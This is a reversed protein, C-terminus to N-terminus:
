NDVGKEFVSKFLAHSSSSYMCTTGRAAIKLVNFPFHVNGLRSYPLSVKCHSYNKKDSGTFLVALRLGAGAGPRRSGLKWARLALLPSAPCSPCPGGPPCQSPPEAPSCPLVLHFCTLATPSCPGEGAPVQQDAAIVEGRRIVSSRGASALYSLFTPLAALRRACLRLWQTALHRGAAQPVERSEAPRLMHRAEALPAVPFTVQAPRASAEPARSAARAEPGEVQPRSRASPGLPTAVVWLRVRGTLSSQQEWGSPSRPVAHTDSCCLQM